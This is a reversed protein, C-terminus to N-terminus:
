GIMELHWWRGQVSPPPTAPYQGLPAAAPDVPGILGLQSSQRLEATVRADCERGHRRVQSDWGAPWGPLLFSFGGAASLSPRLGRGDWLRNVRHKRSYLVLFSPM